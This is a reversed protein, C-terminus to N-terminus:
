SASLIKCSNAVYVLLEEKSNAKNELELNEFEKRLCKLETRTLRIIVEAIDSNTAQNNPLKGGLLTEEDKSGRPNGSDEVKIAIDECRESLLVEFSSEPRSLLRETHEYLCQLKDISLQYKKRPEEANSVAISLVCLCFLLFYISRSM